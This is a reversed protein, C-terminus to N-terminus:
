EASRAGLDFPLNAMVEREQGGAAAEVEIFHGSLDHQLVDAFRYWARPALATVFEACEAVNSKAFVEIAGAEFEFVDIGAAATPCFHTALQTVGGVSWSWCLLGQQARNAPHQVDIVILPKLGVRAKKAFVV